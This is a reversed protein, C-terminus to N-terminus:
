GIQPLKPKRAHIVELVEQQLLAGAVDDRFPCTEDALCLVVLEETMYWTYRRWSVICTDAALQRYKRYVRMQQMAKLDRMPAKVGLYGQLWWMTILELTSSSSDM